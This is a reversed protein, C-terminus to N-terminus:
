WGGGPCWVNVGLRGRAVVIGFRHCRCGVVLEPVGFRSVLYVVVEGRKEVIGSCSLERGCVEGFSQRLDVVTVEAVVGVGRLVFESPVFRQSGELTKCAFGGATVVLEFEEGLGEADRQGSGLAVAPRSM